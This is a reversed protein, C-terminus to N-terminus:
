GKSWFPGELDDLMKERASKEEDNTKFNRPEHYTREITVIKESAASKKEQDIGLGRQRGGLLGLYVEALLESDLLAGYLTRGTNDIDCQRCLKDLHPGM